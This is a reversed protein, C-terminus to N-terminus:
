RSMVVTAPEDDCGQYGKAQTRFLGAYRGGTRMLQGHDGQEVVRGGDLVVIHDASRLSGLRHSILLSTRGRRFWRLTDHM